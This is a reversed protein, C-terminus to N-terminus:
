RPLSWLSALINAQDNGTLCYLIHTDAPDAQRLIAPKSGDGHLFGCDLEEALADIREKRREVFIVEHGRKFLLRATMVALSSAGIFVARM